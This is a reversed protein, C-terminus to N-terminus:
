VLSWLGSVTSKKHDKHKPRYDSTQLRHDSILQKPNRYESKPNLTKMNDKGSEDGM